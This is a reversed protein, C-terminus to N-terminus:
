ELPLHSHSGNDSQDSRDDSAAQPSRCCSARIPARRRRLPSRRRRCRAASRRRGPARSTSGRRGSRRGGDRRARTSSRARSRSPTRDHDLVADAVVAEHRLELMRGRIRCRDTRVTASTSPTCPGRRWDAGRTRRAQARRIARRDGPMELAGIRRVRPRIAVAERAELRAQPRQLTLDRPNAGAEAARGDGVGLGDGAVQEGDSPRTFRAGDDNVRAISSPVSGDGCANAAM